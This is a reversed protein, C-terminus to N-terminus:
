NRGPVLSASDKTSMGVGLTPNEKGVHVPEHHILKQWKQHIKFRLNSKAVVTSFKLRKLWHNLNFKSCGLMNIPDQFSHFCWKCRFISPFCLKNVIKEELPCFYFAALGRVSHAYLQQRRKRVSKLPTMLIQHRWLGAIQQWVDDKRITQSDMKNM